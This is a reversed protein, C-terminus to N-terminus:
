KIGFEQKILDIAFDIYFNKIGICPDKLFNKWLRRKALLLKNIVEQPDGKSKKMIRGCNKYESKVEM